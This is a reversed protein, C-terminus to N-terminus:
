GVPHSWNGLTPQILWAGRSRLRRRGTASCKWENWSCELDRWGELAVAFDEAMELIQRPCSPDSELEAVLRVAVEWRDHWDSTFPPIYDLADM